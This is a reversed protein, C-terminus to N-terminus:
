NNKENSLYLKKIIKDTEEQNATKGVINYIIKDIKRITKEKKSIEKVISFVKAFYLLVVYLAAVILRFILNESSLQIVITIPAGVGIIAILIAVINNMDIQISSKINELLKIQESPKM